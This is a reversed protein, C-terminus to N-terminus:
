DGELWAPVEDLRDLQQFRAHHQPAEAHEHAWTVRYPIHIGFAGAEIAPLVDSKLSNGIMVARSAGDKGGFIRRYVDATKESVIHVDDILDGLDSRAIKTEQDLLDGKTIVLLRYRGKLRTLTQAVGPLPEIRTVLMDRGIEIIDHIAGASLTRDSLEVAAEIM